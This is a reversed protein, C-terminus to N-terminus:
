LFEKDATYSKKNKVFVMIFFLAFFFPLLPMKYRSLAGFNFSISGVVVAFIIVFFFMFLVLQGRKFFELLNFKIKFLMYTTMLLTLLAELGSILIIPKKVEWLYPRFLAVNLSALLYQLVNISNGVNLKGINYVADGGISLQVKTMYLIRSAMKAFLGTQLISSIYFFIIGIVAVFLFISAPLLWYKKEKVALNEICSFLYSIFFAVIFVYFIYGKIKILLFVALISLIFLFGRKNKNKTEGFFLYFVIGLGGICLPDKMVGTAWFWLAPYAVIFLYFYNRLYPYKKYFVYFILWVGIFSWVSFFFSIAIYSDFTFYSIAAASLIVFKNDQFVLSGFKDSIALISKVKFSLENFDGYFIKGYESFSCESIARSINKAFSFFVFSDTKKQYSWFFNNNNSWNYAVSIGCL